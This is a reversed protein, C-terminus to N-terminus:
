KSLMEALSRSENSQGVDDLELKTWVYRQVNPPILSGWLSSGNKTDYSIESPVKQKSGVHGYVGPWDDVVKINDMPTDDSNAECYAVGKLANARGICSHSTFVQLLRGM